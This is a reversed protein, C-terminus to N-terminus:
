EGPTPAGPRPYLGCRVIQRALELDQATDIDTLYVPDKIVHMYPITMYRGRSGVYVGYSRYGRHSGPLLGGVTISQESYENHRGPTLPQLRGEQAHFYTNHNFAIQRCTLVPSHGALGIATLKDILGPPRFPHTPYLTVVYDTAFGEEALTSIAHNVVEAIPTTDGSLEAPRRFPTEAGYSRATEAIEDDDTSVIVRTLLSSALAERITYAILPMGCLDALNKRPLGQSGGRAPIVALVNGQSTSTNMM